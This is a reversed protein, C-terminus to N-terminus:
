LRAIRILWALRSLQDRSLTQALGFITSRISALTPSWKAPTAFAISRNCATRWVFVVALQLDIGKGKVATVDTGTGHPLTSLPHSGHPM